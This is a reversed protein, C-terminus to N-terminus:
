MKMEFINRHGHVNWPNMRTYFKDENQIDWKAKDQNLAPQPRPPPPPPPGKQEALLKFLCSPKLTSHELTSELESFNAVVKKWLPFHVTM